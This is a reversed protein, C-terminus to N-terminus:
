IIEDNKLLRTIEDRFEDNASSEMLLDIISNIKDRREQESWKKLGYKKRSEEMEEIRAEAYRKFMLCLKQEKTLKLEEENVGLMDITSTRYEELMKVTVTLPLGIKGSEYNVLSSKSIDLLNAAEDLTLGSKKRSNKLRDM